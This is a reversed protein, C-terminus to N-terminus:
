LILSSDVKKQVRKTFSKLCRVVSSYSDEAPHGYWLLRSLLDAHVTPEAPSFGPPYCVEDETSADARSTITKKKHSGLHHDAGGMIIHGTAARARAASSILRIGGSGPTLSRCVNDSFHWPPRRAQRVSAAKGFPRLHVCMHGKVPDRRESLSSSSNHLPMRTFPWNSDSECRALSCVGGSCLTRQSTLLTTYPM